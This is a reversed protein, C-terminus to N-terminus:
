DCIVHLSCQLMYIIPITWKSNQNPNGWFLENSVFSGSHGWIQHTGQRSRRPNRSSLGKLLFLDPTWHCNLHHLGNQHDPLSHHHFTSNTPKFHRALYLDLKSSSVNAPVHLVEQLSKPILLRNMYSWTTCELYTHRVRDTMTIPCRYYLLIDCPTYNRISVLFFIRQKSILNRAWCIHFMRPEIHLVQSVQFTKHLGKLCFSFRWKSRKYNEYIM